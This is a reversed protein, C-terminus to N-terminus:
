FTYTLGKMFTHKHMSIVKFFHYITYQKNCSFTSGISKNIWNHGQSLFICKGSM